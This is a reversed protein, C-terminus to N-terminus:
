EEEETEGRQAARAREAYDELFETASAAFKVVINRHDNARYATRRYDLDQLAGADGTVLESVYDHLVDPDYDQFDGTYLNWVKRPVEITGRLYVTGNETQKNLEEISLPYPSLNQYRLQEAEPDPSWDTKDDTELLRSVIMQAPDIKM